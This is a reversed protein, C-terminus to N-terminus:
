AKHKIIHERHKNLGAECSGYMLLNLQTSNIAIFKRCKSSIPTEHLIRRGLALINPKRQGCPNWPISGKQRRGYLLTTYAGYLGSVYLILCTLQSSPVPSPTPCICAPLVTSLSDAQPTVIPRVMVM